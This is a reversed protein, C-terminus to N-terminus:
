YKVMKLLLFLESFSQDHVQQTDLGNVSM